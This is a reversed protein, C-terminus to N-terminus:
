EYGWDYGVGGLRESSSEKVDQFFEKIDMLIEKITKNEVRAWILLALFGLVGFTIIWDALAM